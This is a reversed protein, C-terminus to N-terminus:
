EVVLVDSYSASHRSTFPYSGPQEPAPFTMLANPPVVVDFSGDTATITMATTTSNHVTVLSGAAVPGAVHFRSGDLLVGVALEGHDHGAMDDGGPAPAAGDTADSGDSGGPGDATAAATRDTGTGGASAPPPAASLAVALAVTALMVAAEVAAFRRFSGSRGARLAPLTRRRHERGLIGLVVLASLKAALLWGYGTGVAASWGAATGGLVLWAALVGSVGTALFCGLALASFRAAAPALDEARRGHVLLALLGGVWGTAALVHLSLNTVALVHDDATSSHGTLVAPVVLGVTAVALLLAARAPTTGRRATTAVVASVVLVVLSSRGADLDTLFIWTAAPSPSPGVLLGLTLLAHVATAAAWATAWVSAARLAGRVGPSAPGTGPRLVAAFVLTGVTGVAALRGALRSVPVGWEALARPGPTGGGVALAVLLVAVIAVCGAGVAAVVVPAPRSRLGATAAAAAVPPVQPRDVVTM